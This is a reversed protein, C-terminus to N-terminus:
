VPFLEKCKNGRLTDSIILFNARQAAQHRGPDDRYGRRDRGTGALDARGAHGPRGGARFRGRSWGARRGLVGAPAGPYPAVSLLPKSCAGLGGSQDPVGAQEAAAVLRENRQFVAGAARDSGLHFQDRRGRAAGRRDVGPIRVAVGSAGGLRGSSRFENVDTVSVSVEPCVLGSPSQVCKSRIM